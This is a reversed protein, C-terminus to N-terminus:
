VTLGVLKGNVGRVWRRLREGVKVARARWCSTRTRETLKESASWVAAWILAHAALAVACRMRM